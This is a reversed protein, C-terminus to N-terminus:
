AGNMADATNVIITANSGDYTPNVRVGLTANGQHSGSTPVTIIRGESVEFSIHEATEDAVVLGNQAKKRLFVRTIGAGAALRAIGTGGINADAFESMDLTEFGMSAQRGTISVHEPFVQGSSFVPEATIGFDVNNRVTGEVLSANVYSDGVTYLTSVGSEATTISIGTTIILPNNTGDWAPIIEWTGTAEEGQAGTITRPVCIGLSAVVKVHNTADAAFQGGPLRKRFWCVMTGAVAGGIAIGDIGIKDLATKLDNTTFSIRPSISAASVHEPDVFSNGSVMADTIGPDVTQDVVGNIVDAATGGVIEVSYITYIDSGAM